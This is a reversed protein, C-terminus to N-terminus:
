RGTVMTVATTSSAFGQKEKGKGFLVKVENRFKSSSLCYIYFNITPNIYTIVYAVNWTMLRLHFEFYSRTGTFIYSWYIFDTHYPITFLLFAISNVLLMATLSVERSKAKNGQGGLMKRRTASSRAVAISIRLNAALLLIFLIWGDIIINHLYYVRYYKRELSIDCTWYDYKELYIPSVWIFGPASRCLNLITVVALSVKARFKTCLVPARLPFIVAIMRDLTMLLIVWNSLRPGSFLIFLLSRCFSGNVVVAGFNRRLYHHMLCNTVMNLDCIALAIMFFGTTTKRYVPQGLIFLSLINGFTGLFMLLPPFYLNYGDYLTQLYRLRALEWELAAASGPSTSAVVPEDSYVDGSLDTNTWNEQLTM